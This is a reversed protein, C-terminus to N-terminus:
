PAVEWGAPRGEPDRAVVTARAATAADTARAIDNQSRAVILSYVAPHRLRTGPAALTPPRDWDLYRVVFANFDDIIAVTGAGRSAAAALQVDAFSYADYREGVPRELYTVISAVGVGALALAAAAALAPRGIDGVVSTALRVLELCGIGVLAGVFPALGLSRLFHPAGGENAVLPPILYVALGILLAAHAHERRMRWARWVGFAFPIFLLPGLLPLGNVDHRQNPDGTVLFMGLTRLVHVPYSDVSASEPNFVSVSAGRGFYNNFDSAATYIMPAAVVLYAAVAWGIGARVRLYRERDAHRMWLLWCIILLPALKLPQYTWLGLGAAAGAILAWRRGPRDGWRLMAALALGGALVVLIVRFGDRSVCILWLSGAAWAMAALAPWRGFRRTAVWVAIVGAVGVAAATSRLVLVSSGFWRFALAVMYAFWAERGGDDDFFIPHYGPEHLLRQASLGEAAEDSYLGGPQTALAWFRLAM